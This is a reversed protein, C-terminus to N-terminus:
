RRLVWIGAIVVAGVSFVGAVIKIAEGLGKGIGGVGEGLGKGVEGLGKGVEGVAGFVHEAVREGTEGVRELRRMLWPTWDADREARALAVAEREAADLQVTWVAVPFSQAIYGPVLPDVDILLESRVGWERPAARVFAGAAQERLHLLLHDVFVRVEGRIYRAAAAQAAEESAGHQRASSVYEDRKKRLLQWLELRDARYRKTQEAMEDLSPLDSM